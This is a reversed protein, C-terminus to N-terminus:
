QGYQETIQPQGHGDYTLVTYTRNGRAATVTAKGLSPYHAQLQAFLNSIFTERTTTYGYVLQGDLDNVLLSAQGVQRIFTKYAASKPDADCGATPSVRLQMDLNYNQSAAYAILTTDETAADPCNGAFQDFGTSAVLPAATPVSTPRALPKTPSSSNSLLPINKLSLNKTKCGGLAFALVPLLILLSYARHGGRGPVYEGTPARDTASTSTPQPETTIM